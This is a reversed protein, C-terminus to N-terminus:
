RSEERPVWVMPPKRPMLGTMPRLPVDILPGREVYPGPKTPLNMVRLAVRPNAHPM